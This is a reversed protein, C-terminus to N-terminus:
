DSCGFDSLATLRSLPFQGNGFEPLKSHYGFQALLCNTLDIDVSGWARTTSGSPPGGPRLVGGVNQSMDAHIHGSSLAGVCYTWAQNGERDFTVWTVLIDGNDHIREIFVYHGDAGADYYTGNMGNATIAGAGGGYEYAGADCGSPLRTYGRADVAECYQARGAARAPSDYALAQTPVLGGHNGFSGLKIEAIVVDGTGAALGCSADTTVNGGLSTVTGDLQCLTSGNGSLVSNAITTSSPSGVYILPSAAALNAVTSNYIQLSGANAILIPNAYQGALFSSNAITVNRLVLEGKSDILLNNECAISGSTCPEPMALDHISVNELNLAGNNCVASGVTISQGLGIAFRECMTTIPSGSPAAVISANRITLTAGSAVTGTLYQFTAGQGDIEVDGSHLTIDCVAYRGNRALLVSSKSSTSALASNLGACDGDAIRSVTAAAVQCADAALLIFLLLIRTM